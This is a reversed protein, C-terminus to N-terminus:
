VIRTEAGDAPELLRPVENECHDVVHLLVEHGDVPELALGEARAIAKEHIRIRIRLAVAGKEVDEKEDISGSSNGIDCSGAPNREFRGLACDVLQLPVSQDLVHVSSAIPLASGAGAPCM